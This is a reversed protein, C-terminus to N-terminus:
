EMEDELKNLVQILAPQAKIYGRNLRVIMEMKTLEQVTVQAEDPMMGGFEQFDRVKFHGAVCQQLTEYVDPRHRLYRYAKNRNQESKIKRKIARTSQYLYGFSKMGYIMDLFEMAADVHERRVLVKDGSPTASFLRAAIAVAIRAIKIRVNEPQILPPEAVYKKGYITASEMVYDEVGKDWVVDDSRRSWCWAVLESCLEATYVHEVIEHDVANILDADVDSSAVSMAFDFRSIDEPNKVLESIAEIAGTPMEEITKGDSPNSIWILRTRASTQASQIKNIQAVGSSRIASMQDIIGKDKIGSVEDLVVLRRDNMPITGWRIMWSKGLQEAGGVLGAFSAGECSVLVGSNYHDILHNGVESKGTRTDGILLAELWGKGIKKGKFYFDMISHWVADYAIHLEPRGYIQTVNTALDNAIEQMKELPSQGAAPRFASLREAMEPTVEFRDLNTQVPECRWSQFLSRNNKPDSINLGTIRASINIPTAYTGVNYVKRQIPSQIGEGRDDLSPMVLLEEISWSEEREIEVRQCSTPIGHAKKIITNTKEESSEIMDMLSSDDEPFSHEGRLGTASMPCGACKAGAGQDCALLVRRPLMFAPQMKGSITVPVSLPRNTYDPNMSEELGVELSDVTVRGKTKTAAPSKRSEDMLTRFEPAGHQSNVLYDTIDSGDFPLPLRIIYVERAYNKLERLVRATGSVGAQDCDYCIFVVKGDFSENWEKKWTTAGGTHTITPLGYQQGIIADLEGEVIIVEDNDALFKPYFLEATGTGYAWSKMKSKITKALPDYRRVNVLEGDVDRIPITFREGDWGIQFREITEITFGRKERLIKLRVPNGLLASKFEILQDESPLQGRETKARRTPSSKVGYGNSSGSDDFRVFDWLRKLSMGGCKEDGNTSFCDFVGKEFNFSASPTKSEEPDQHIPCYGAWEGSPNAQASTLYRSFKEQYDVKSKMAVSM